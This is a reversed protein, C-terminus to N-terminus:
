YFNKYKKALYEDELYYQGKEKILHRRNRYFNDKNTIIKSKSFHYHNLYRELLFKNYLQDIKKYEKQLTLILFILMIILNLYINPYNIIVLSFITIYSLYITIKISRKFPFFLSLLINLLKGGDLPYIPLLNFILIGYHYNKLM